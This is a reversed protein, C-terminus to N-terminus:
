GEAFGASCVRTAVGTFDFDGSLGIVHLPKGQGLLPLNLSAAACNQAISEASQRQSLVGATTTGMKGRLIPGQSERLGVAGPRSGGIVQASDAGCM